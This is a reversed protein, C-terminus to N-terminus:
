KIDTQKKGIKGSLDKPPHGAPMRMLQDNIKFLTLLEWKLILAAGGLADVGPTSVSAVRLPTPLAPPAPSHDGLHLSM